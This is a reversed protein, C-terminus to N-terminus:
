EFQTWLELHGFVM